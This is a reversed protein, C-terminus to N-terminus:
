KEEVGLDAEKIQVFQPISIETRRVHPCISHFGCYRADCWWAQDPAPVFIGSRISAIANVIRNLYSMAQQEDRKTVLTMTKTSKKLDVLYDLKLSHPLKGDLVQSAIAYASLQNSKHATDESPSKKSTKVDRIVLETGDNEVIDQEGVFDFGDRAAANLYAAQQHVIKQFGKIEMKEAEAHIKKARERLWKDMNLSFRRHTATPKVIPAIEAHHATVLRVAKDKVEGLIQENSKGEEDDEPEINDREPHNAVADRAVDLIVSEQELEGTRIKCDLDTGVASDTATGCILFSKPRRKMGRLYRFEFQIGCKSLMELGSQHLQKRVKMTIGGLADSAM